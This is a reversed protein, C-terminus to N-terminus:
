YSRKSHSYYMELKVAITDITVLSCYNKMMSSFIIQFVVFIPRFVFKAEVYTVLSVSCEVLSM